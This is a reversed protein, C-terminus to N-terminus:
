KSIIPLMKSLLVRMGQSLKGYLLVLSYPKDAAPVWASLYMREVRTERVYHLSSMHLRM